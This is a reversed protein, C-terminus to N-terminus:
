QVSLQRPGSTAGPPPPPPPPVKSTPQSPLGQPASPAAEAVVEAEAVERAMQRREQQEETVSVTFEAMAVRVFDQVLKEGAVAMPGSLAPGAAGVAAEEDDRSQTVSRPLMDQVNPNGLMASLQGVASLHKETMAWLREMLTIDRESVAEELIEMVGDTFQEIIRGMSGALQVVREIAAAAAFNVQQGQWEIRAQKWQGEVSWKKVTQIHVGAAQAVDAHTRLDGRVWRTQFEARQETTVVRREDPM